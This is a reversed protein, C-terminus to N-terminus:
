NKCKKATTYVYDGLKGQARQQLLDDLHKVHFSSDNKHISEYANLAGEVGTLYVSESDKSKEPHEIVFAAESALMTAIVVGPYDSKSNGLDGLFIPCMKISIDPVEILWKVLWEREAHSKAALPDTQLAHAAEVARAREEATSPGRQQAVAMSPVVELAVLLCLFIVARKLM